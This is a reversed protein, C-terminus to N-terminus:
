ELRKKKEKSDSKVISRRNKFESELDKFSKQSFDPVRMCKGKIASKGDGSASIEKPTGLLYLEQEYNVFAALTAPFTSYKDVM